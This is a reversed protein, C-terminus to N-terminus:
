IEVGFAEAFKEIRKFEALFKKGKQTLYYKSGQKDKREVILEKSLLEDMYKILRDYSLNAGYLIQTIRAGNEEYIVKLIDALIRLKSRRPKM